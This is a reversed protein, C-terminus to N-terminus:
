NHASNAAKTQFVVNTWSKLDCSIYKGCEDSVPKISAAYSAAPGSERQEKRPPSLKKKLRLFGKQEREDVSINAYELALTVGNCQFVM